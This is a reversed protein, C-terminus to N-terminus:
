TRGRILVPLDYQASIEKIDTYVDLTEYVFITTSTVVAIVTVGGDESVSLAWSSEVELGALAWKTVIVPKGSEFKFVIV